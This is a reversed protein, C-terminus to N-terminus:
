PILEQIDEPILQEAGELFGGLDGLFGQGQEFLPRSDELLRIAEDVPIRQAVERLPLAILPPLAGAEEADDVARVLGARVAAELTADDIGYRRVFVERTEETALGRALQERSVQLECAAGDLASLSFQEALEELGQPDRWERPECPDAVKAPSYEAGGAALYGVVLALAALASGIVLLQSRRDDSV